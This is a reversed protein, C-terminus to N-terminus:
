LHLTVEGAPGNFEALMQNLVDMGIVNRPQKGAVVDTDFRRGGIFFHTEYVPLVASGTLGSFVREEIVRAADINLALLFGEYFCCHEAGTDLKAQITVGNPLLADVFAVPQTAGQAYPWTQKM